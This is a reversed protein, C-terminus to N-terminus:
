LRPRFVVSVDLSRGATTPRWPFTNGGQDQRGSVRRQDVLVEATTRTNVKRHMFAAPVTMRLDPSPIGDITARTRCLELLGMNEIRMIDRSISIATITASIGMM